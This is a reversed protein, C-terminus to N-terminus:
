LDLDFCYAVSVLLSDVGSALCYTASVLLSGFVQLWDTQLMDIVCRMGLPLWDAVSISRAATTVITTLLSNGTKHIHKYLGGMRISHQSLAAFSASHLRFSLRSFPLSYIQQSYYSNPRLSPVLDLVIRPIVSRVSFIANKSHEV